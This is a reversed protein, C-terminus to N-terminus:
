HLDFTRVLDRNPSGSHCSICGDGKKSVSFATSGDPNYEGWLWGNGANDNGPDKKMVAYLSVSGGSTVEKVIISGSPFTNGAPQNFCTM